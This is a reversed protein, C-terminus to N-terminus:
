AEGVGPAAEEGAGVEPHTGSSTGVDYEAAPSGCDTARKGGAVANSREGIDGRGKGHAGDYWMRPCRQVTVENLFESGNDLHLELFPFPIQHSLYYLADAVVIYSRGLIARRGSWGTAVDIIQLTYVYEGETRGGCHHVLDLEFHGPEQIDWPIQRIPIAQQHVNQFRKRARTVRYAPPAPLHRGITSASITALQAKLKPGLRLEGFDALQEATFVLVPKIRQPCIYDQAEWVLALVEDVDPGYTKDRERSRPRRQLSDQQMLHILYKRHLGTVKEMEDLLEKKKCRTSAEAYRAQQIRLYKYREDITMKDDTTM